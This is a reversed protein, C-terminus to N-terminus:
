GISTASDSDSVNEGLALSALDYRKQKQWFEIYMQCLPILSVQGVIKYQYAKGRSDIAETFIRSEVSFKEDMLKRTQAAVQADTLLNYPHIPIVIDFQISKKSGLMRPFLFKDGNTEYTDSTMFGYPKHVELEGSVTLLKVPVFGTNEIRLHLTIQANPLTEKEFGDGRPELKYEYESGEVFYISIEPSIPRAKDPIKSLLDLYVEFSAWVLGILSVGIYVGQSLHFSPIVLQIVAGIADLALFLWLIWKRALIKLFSWFLIISPKM